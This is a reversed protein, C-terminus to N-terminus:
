QTPPTWKVKRFRQYFNQLWATDFFKKVGTTIQKFKLSQSQDMLFVYGNETLNSGPFLMLLSDNM